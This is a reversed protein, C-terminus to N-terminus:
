RHHAGRHDQPRGQKSIGNNYNGTVTLSGGGNITLDSKSYIAANPEDSAADELVYAGGDTVRNETGEALTIITKRASAVYIPASTSCTIDAGNLVLKM